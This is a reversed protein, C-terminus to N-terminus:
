ATVSTKALRGVGVIDIPVRRSRSFVSIMGGKENCLRLARNFAVEVSLESRDDFFFFQDHLEGDGGRKSVKFYNNTM